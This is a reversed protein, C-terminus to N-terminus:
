SEQNTLWTWVLVRFTDRAPSDCNRSDWLFLIRRAKSGVRRALAEVSVTHELTLRNLHGSALDRQYDSFDDLWGFFEGVRVLWQVHETFGIYRRSAERLWAPMGMVALPLANKRWWVQRFSAPSRASQLEARHLRRIAKELLVRVREMGTAAPGLRKFYTEVLQNVLLHKSEVAQAPPTAPSTSFLNPVCGEVDLLHDFLAYILHAIGGLSAVEARREPNMGVGSVLFDTLSAGVGLHHMSIRRWGGIATISEPLKRYEEEGRDVIRAGVLKATLSDPALGAAALEAALLRAVPSLM